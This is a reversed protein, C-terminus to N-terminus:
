SASGQPFPGSPPPVWSLDQPYAEAPLCSLRLIDAPRRSFSRTEDPFPLALLGRSHQSKSGAGELAEAHELFHLRQGELAGPGALGWPLGTRLSETYHFTPSFGLRPSDPPCGPRPGGRGWLPRVGEREGGRMGPM